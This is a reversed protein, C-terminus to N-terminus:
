LNNFINASFELSYGFYMNLSKSIATEVVSPPGFTCVLPLVLANSKDVIAM